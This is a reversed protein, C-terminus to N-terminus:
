KTKLLKQYFIKWYREWYDASRLDLDPYGPVIAGEFPWPDAPDDVLGARWPNQRLYGSLEEFVRRESESRGLIHDYAQSQWRYGGANELVPRLARRWFAIALRQDSRTEDFGMLLVHIHDPMLCFCPCAVAYRLCTHLGAWQFRLLFAETMWGTRRGQITFIWHGVALGRYAAPPLKPLNRKRWHENSDTKPLSAKM